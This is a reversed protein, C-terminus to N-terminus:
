EAELLFKALEARKEKPIVTLLNDEGKISRVIEVDGNARTQGRVTCSNARTAVSGPYEEPSIEITQM